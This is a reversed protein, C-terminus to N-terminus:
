ASFSVTLRANCRQQRGERQCVATRARYPGGLRAGRSGAEQQCVDPRRGNSVAHEAPDVRGPAPVGGRNFAESPLTEGVDEPSPDRQPRSMLGCSSVRRVSVTQTMPSIFLGRSGASAIILSTLAIGLSQYTWGGCHCEAKRHLSCSLCGAPDIMGSQTSPCQSSLLAEQSYPPSQQCRQSAQLQAAIQTVWQRQQLGAAISLPLMRQMLGGLQLGAVSVFGPAPQQCCHQEAQLCVVALQRYAAAVMFSCPSQTARGAPSKDHIQCALPPRSEPLSWQSLAPCCAHYPLFM